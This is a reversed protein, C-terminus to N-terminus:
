IMVCRVIRDGLGAKEINRIIQYISQVGAPYIAVVNDTIRGHTIWQAVLEHYETDNSVTGMLGGKQASITYNSLWEAQKGAGWLILPTLHEPKWLHSENVITNKLHQRVMRERSQNMRLRDRVLDDFFVYSAGQLLLRQSLEYLSCILGDEPVDVTFDCSIQFLSALLPSGQLKAVFATIEESCFNGAGVIYKITLRRPDDLVEQYRILNTLVQDLGKKGRLSEFTFETGADISTVLHFRPDALLAELHTSYKLSNSLIRINGSQLHTTLCRNIPAFRPSLTPEGGGWVVQCNADFGGPSQAIREVIALADYSAETGDYYKPSCYTCRMNCYAFNELSLYNIGGLDNARREIYPCSACEPASNSNIRNVLEQKASQIRNIDIGKDAKLLVVDGKRAGDVFYRKCCARIEDPGLFLSKDLDRCSLRTSFVAQISKLLNVDSSFSQSRWISGAYEFNTTTPGFSPLHALDISWADSGEGLCKLYQLFGISRAESPERSILLLIVGLIQTILFQFREPAGFKSGSLLKKLENYAQIYGDMRQTSMNATISDMYKQKLVITNPLIIVQDACLLIEVIYRIDEHLGRSFFIKNRIVLDRRIVHRFVEQFEQFGMILTALDLGANEPTVQYTKKLSHSVVDVNEPAERMKQFIASVHEPDLTDDDDLFWIWTGKAVAMGADRAPGPGSNTRMQMLKVNQVRGFRLQLREITGDNSCDDVVICEFSAGTTQAGRRLASLYGELSSEVLDSRRHTPIIVTLLTM